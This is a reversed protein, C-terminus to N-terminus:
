CHDLFLRDALIYDAGAEVAAQADEARSPLYAIVRANKKHYARFIRLGFLPIRKLRPPLAYSKNGKIGALFSLGFLVALGARWCEDDRAFFQANPFLRRALEDDEKSWLLFSIKKEFELGNNSQNLLQRLSALAAQATEIKVDFVWRLQAFEQMFKDLFLVGQGCPYKLKELEERTCSSVQLDKAFLRKLNKDHFLVIEKDRTLRLDTELWTFGQSVALQFASLSNETFGSDRVGRHSIWIPKSMLIGSALLM